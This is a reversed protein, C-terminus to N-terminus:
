ALNKLRDALPERSNLQPAECDRKRFSSMFSTNRLRKLIMTLTPYFPVCFSEADTKQLAQFVDGEKETLPTPAQIDTHSGNLRPTVLYFLHASQEQENYSSFFWQIIPLRRILPVGSERTRKIKNKLGGLVITQGPYAKITTALKSTAVQILQQTLSTTTTTSGIGSPSSSSMLIDITMLGDDAISTVTFEIRDGADITTLSGGEPAAQLMTGFFLSTPRGVLTSVTPRTTYSALTNSANMINLSYDLAVPGVAYGFLNGAVKVSQDKVVVTDKRQGWLALQRASGKSTGGLVIQLPSLAQAPDFANLINNGKQLGSVEQVSLIYGDLVIGINEQAVPAAPNALPAPGDTPILSPNQHLRNWFEVRGTVYQLDNLCHTKAYCAYRELLIAAGKRDGAAAFVIAGMRIYCPEDPSLRLIKRMACYATALDQKQYSACALVYWNKVQDSHSVLTKAIIKQAKDLQGQRLHQTSLYYGSLPHTPDLTAATQFAVQAMDNAQREGRLAREEWIFGQALHLAACDPHKELAKNVYNAAQNLQNKRALEILSFLSFGPPFQGKFQRLFGWSQSVAKPSTPPAIKKNSACGTLITVCIAFLLRKM